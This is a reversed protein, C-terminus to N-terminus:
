HDGSTGLGFDWTMTPSSPLDLKPLAKLTAPLRTSDSARKAVRFQMVPMSPTGIGGPRGDVREVSELVPKKGLDKGFDVVVDAGDAPGLLVDAGLVHKPLLASGNGVQAM